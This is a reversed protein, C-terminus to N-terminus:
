RPEDPGRAILTASRLNFPEDPMENEYRVKCYQVVRGSLLRSCRGDTESLDATDGENALSLETSSFDTYVKLDMTGTTQPEYTTILRDLKKTGFEGGLSSWGTEYYANIGGIWFTDGAVPLWEWDANLTLVTATNSSIVLSQKAGTSARYVTLMMGSMGLNTTYFAASADTLTSPSSTASDVTGSTTGTEPGDADGIGYTWVYGQADGLIPYREYNTSSSSGSTETVSQTEIGGCTFEKTFKYITFRFQPEGPMARYDMVICKSCGASDGVDPVFLLYRKQAAWNLAFASRCRGTAERIVTGFEDAIEDSVIKPPGGTSIAIGAESLWVLMGGIDQITRHSLCGIQTSLEAVTGWGLNPLTDYSLLFTKHLTFLLGVGNIAGCGTEPDGASLEVYRYNAAPFNEYDDPESWNLEGSPRCIKCRVVSTPESASTGVFATDLTVSHPSGTNYEEIIYGRPENDPYVVMGICGVDLTDYDAYTAEDSMIFGEASGVTLQLYVTLEEGGWLFLRRKMKMPYAKNPPM